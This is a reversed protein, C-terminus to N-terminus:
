EDMMPEPRGIYPQFAIMEEDIDLEKLRSKLINENEADPCWVRVRNLRDSIDMSSYCDIAGKELKKECEELESRSYKTTESALMTEEKPVTSETQKPTTEQVIPTAAQPKNAVSDEGCASLSCIILAIIISSIVRRLNM